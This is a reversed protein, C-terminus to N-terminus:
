SHSTKARAETPRGWPTPTGAARDPERPRHALAYRGRRVPTSTAVKGQAAGARQAANASSRRTTAASRVFTRRSARSSGPPGARRDKVVPVEENGRVPYLDRWRDVDAWHLRWPTWRVGM